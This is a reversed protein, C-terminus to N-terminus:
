KPAFSLTMLYIQTGRESFQGGIWSVDPDDLPSTYNALLFTHPGARRLAPFATDGAGPLDTMHAVRKTQRDIRYLATTKPRTSYALTYETKKEAFTLTEHGLDFPGGIDRRAVLYIEEGHRFLEPSDYREPDSKPSCQWQGLADSFATCVHSGFGTQDGEDNRTVAWLAGQADLEFAAESVGGLYVTASEGLPSWTRGDVSKKFYLGIQLQESPGGLDAYHVGGDYSTLYAVGGRVKLDWPVEKAQGFQELATWTGDENRFTRWMRKPEFALPNIGAEFFMLQLEGHFSLLRPERLDVGLAIEHEFDWALGLNASSIVYLKTETSAFHHPGTRWALYLRDRDFVIDVNNNATNPVIAAPLNPGPIVFRPESLRLEYQVTQDIVYHAPDDEPTGPPLTCDVVLLALGLGVFRRAVAETERRSETGDTM